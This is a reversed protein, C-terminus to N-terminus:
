WHLYSCVWTKIIALCIVRFSVIAELEKVFLV